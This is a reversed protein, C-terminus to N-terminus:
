NLVWSGLPASWPTTGLAPHQQQLGERELREELLPGHVPADVLPAEDLDALGRAPVREDDLRARELALTTAFAIAWTRVPPPM